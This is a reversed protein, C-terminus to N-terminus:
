YSTSLEDRIEMGARYAKRAEDITRLSATHYNWGIKKSMRMYLDSRKIRKSKWLPDILAHIQKRAKKLEPSPINGLPRTRDKTKHHCGVWNKCGDCRWFPLSSLDKRHPYVEAGDTLRAQVFEACSCCWLEM